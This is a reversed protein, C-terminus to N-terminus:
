DAFFILNLIHPVIQCFDGFCLLVSLFKRKVQSCTTKHFQSFAFTARLSIFFSFLSVGGIVAKTRATGRNVKSM